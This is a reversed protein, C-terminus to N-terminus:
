QDEELLSWGCSSGAAPDCDYDELWLRGCHRCRHVTESRTGTSRNREHQIPEMDGNDPDCCERTIPQGCSRCKDIIKM